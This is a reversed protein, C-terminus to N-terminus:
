CFMASGSTLTGPMGADPNLRVTRILRLSFQYGSLILCRCKVRIVSDYFDKVLFMVPIAAMVQVPTGAFSAIMKGVDTDHPPWVSSM